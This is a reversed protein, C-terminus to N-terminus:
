RRGCDRYEFDAVALGDLGVQGVVKVVKVTCRTTMKKSSSLQRNDNRLKLKM